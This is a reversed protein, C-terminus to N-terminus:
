RGPHGPGGEGGNSSTLHARAGWVEYLPDDVSALGPHTGLGAVPETVDQWYSWEDTVIRYAVKWVGARREFRDCYRGGRVRMYKRGDTATTLGHSVLAEAAGDGETDAPRAWSPQQLGQIHSIFYLESYAIDGHVEAIHQGLMLMYPPNPPEPQYWYKAAWEAPSSVEWAGPTASTGPPWNQYIQNHCESDPWFTEQWLVKDNRNEARIYKVLVEYIAQKDLLEDYKEQKDLLELLRKETDSDM